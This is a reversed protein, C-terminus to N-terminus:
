LIGDSGVAVDHPFGGGSPLAYAQVAVQARASPPVCALVVLLALLIRPM